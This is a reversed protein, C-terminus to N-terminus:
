RQKREARAILSSASTDLAKAVVEVTDLTPSRQRSFRFEDSLSPQVELTECNRVASETTGNRASDSSM